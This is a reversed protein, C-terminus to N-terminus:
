YSSYKMNTEEFDIGCKNTISLDEDGRAKDTCNEKLSKRIWQKKNIIRYGVQGNRYLVANM